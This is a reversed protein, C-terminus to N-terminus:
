LLARRVHSCDLSKNGVFNPAFRLINAVDINLPQWVCGPHGSTSFVVVVLVDLDLRVTIVAHM